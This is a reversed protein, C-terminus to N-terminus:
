VDTSMFKLACKPLEHLNLLSWIGLSPVAVVTAWPVFLEGQGEFVNACFVSSLTKVLAGM